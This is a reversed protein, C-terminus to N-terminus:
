KTGIKQGSSNQIRQPVGFGVSEFLLAKALQPVSIKQKKATSQLFGGNVKLSV